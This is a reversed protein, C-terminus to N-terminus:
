RSQKMKILKYKQLIRPRNDNNQKNLISIMIGYKKSVKKQIREMLHKLKRKNDAIIVTMEYKLHTMNKGNVKLARKVIEGLFINSYLSFPCGQVVDRSTILKQKQVNLNIIAQTDSYYNIILKLTNKLGKEKLLAILKARDISDFAQKFDIFCIYLDRIKEESYIKLGIFHSYPM